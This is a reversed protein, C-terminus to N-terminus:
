FYNEEFRKFEKMDKTATDSLVRQEANTCHQANLVHEYLRYMNDFNAGCELCFRAGAVSILSIRHTDTEPILNNNRDRYQRHSFGRAAAFVRELDRPNNRIDEDIGTWEGRADKVETGEIHDAVNGITKLNKGCTACTVGM